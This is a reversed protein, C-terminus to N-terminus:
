YTPFGSLDVPTLQHSSGFATIASDITDYTNFPGSSFSLNLFGGSTSWTGLAVLQNNVITFVATGSDGPIPVGSFWPYLISTSDPPYIWEGRGQLMSFNIKRFQNTSMMPLNNSTFAGLSLDSTLASVPLVKAPTIAPPLDSSLRAVCIDGVGYMNSNVASITRPYTVNNNDVFYLTDGIGYCVHKATVVVDPAVLIGSGTIGSNRMAPIATIDIVSSTAIANMINSMNRIYIHTSDNVSSFINVASTSTSLGQIRAIVDTQINKALSNATFDYFKNAVAGGVQSVDCDARKTVGPASFINTSTGNSVRDVEYNIVSDGRSILSLSGVSPTINTETPLTYPMSSLYSISNGTKVGDYIMHSEILCYNNCLADTYTSNIVDKV